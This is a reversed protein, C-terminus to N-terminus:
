HAEHVCQAVNRDLSIDVGRNLRGSRSTSTGRRLAHQPMARSTLWARGPGKGGACKEVGAEILDGAVEKLGHAHGDQIAAAECWGIRIRFGKRRDDDVFGEGVGEEGPLIGDALCEAVSTWAFCCLASWRM